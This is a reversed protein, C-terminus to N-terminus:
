FSIKLGVQIAQDRSPGANDRYGATLQTNNFLAYGLNLGYNFRTAERKAFKMAYNVDNLNAIHLEMEDKDRALVQEVGALIEVSFVKDWLRGSYLASIDVEGTFLRADYGGNNLADAAGTENFGPTHSSSYVLSGSPSIVFEGMKWGQYQLGVSGTWTKATTSGTVVGNITQRCLDHDQASYGATALLNFEGLARRAYVLASAGKVDSNGLSAKLNGSVKSVVVGASFNEHNSLDGGVFFDRRTMDVNDPNRGNNQVYGGFLGHGAYANGSPDHVPSVYNWMNKVLARDGAFAFDSIAGYYDPTYHALHSSAERSADLIQRAFTGVLTTTDIQNQAIQAENFLKAAFRRQNENSGMDAFVSGVENLGTAIVQGTAVDFVIAANTIPTSTNMPVYRVENFTGVVAKPEADPYTAIIQYVNGHALKQVYESFQLISTNGLTATGAVRIQSHYGQGTGLGPTTGEADINLTGFETYGMQYDIIGPSNGPSVIGGPANVFDGTFTLNGKVTNSNTFTGENNVSGEGRLIDYSLTSGDAVNLTGGGQVEVTGTSNVSTTSDLNLSSGTAITVGTTSTTSGTLNISGGNNVNINQTSVTGTLNLTGGTAQLQTGAANIEGTFNGGNSVTFIYDNVNVIGAGNLQNVTQDGGELSLTGDLNVTSSLPLLQEGMLKLESEEDINIVSAETVYHLEVTGATNITGTGLKAQILSGDNLNYTTATLKYDSGTLTGTNTFTTITDDISLTVKGANTLTAGDDLGENTVNDLNGNTIYLSAGMAVNVTPSALSGSLTVTGANVQTIGSYTNTGSLILEDSTIKELGGTGSIDGSFSGSSVAIEHTFLDVSGSGSLGTITQNGGLALTGNVTVNAGWIREVSGLTLTSGSNVNVTGASSSGNLTVAGDTTLTGTGLNANITGTNVDYTTATLTYGGGNLSGSASNNFAAITQNSSLTVTGGVNNLTATSALGGNTINLAADSDVGVTGSALSGSLTLTGANIQTPGVFTNAGSLTLTGSSTKTLGYDDDEGSITGSFTGSKATLGGSLLDITGSGNLADIEDDAKFVATGNITLSSSSKLGGNNINLTATNDVTVASSQLSGDLEVTGALIDTDGTYTSDGTMRIIGTYGSDGLILGGNSFSGSLIVENTADESSKHLITRQGGGFNVDNTFTVNHESGEAGFILSSGAPVFSDTAWTISEDKNLTVTLDDDRAAFGGSGTWQVRNSGTGTYRDFTGQTSLTGGAFDINSNGHIGTGDDAELVGGTLRTSGTYTNVGNFQVIGSAVTLGAGQGIAQSGNAISAMSDDAITGNFTITEGDGPNLTVSSGKMMFLDSGAHDGAEGSNVSSGGEVTNNYFTASGNINLTGGSRVFIAGGYGAGGSGGVGDSTGDAKSGHGGGFGGLGGEGYIGGVAAIGVNDGKSGGSGGNGGRGGGGGFGGLGGTGGSGGKGGAAKSNSVANGGNGGAGALGGGFFDSGKGGDGGSGGDGGLGCVGDDQYATVTRYTNFAAQAAAVAANLAADSAMETSLTVLSTEIIVLAASVTGFGTDMPNAAATTVAAIAGTLSAASGSLVGGSSLSIAEKVVVAAQIATALASEITSDSGNSGNGGNGGTGGFGATAAGGATGNYGFRGNGQNREASDSPANDGKSGDSGSNTATPLNNLKGGVTGAGGAGGISTNAKFHVNNLNVTAGDNIFLAGGLGAGGGSGTGGTTRFNRLTV